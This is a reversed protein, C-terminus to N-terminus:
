NAMMKMTMSTAYYRFVKTGDDHVGVIQESPNQHLQTPSFTLDIHHCLIIETDCYNPCNDEFLKSELRMEIDSKKLEYVHHIDKTQSLKVLLKGSPLNKVKLFIAHLAEM